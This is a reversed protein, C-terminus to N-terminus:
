LYHGTGIYCAIYDEYRAMTGRPPNEV